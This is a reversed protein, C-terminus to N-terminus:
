NPCVRDCGLVNESRDEQLLCVDFSGPASALLDDPDFVAPQPFGAGFIMAVGLRGPPFWGPGRVQPSYRLPGARKGHTPSDVM